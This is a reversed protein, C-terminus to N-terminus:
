ESCKPMKRRDVACALPFPLAAGVVPGGELDGAVVAAGIGVAEECVERQATQEHAAVGRGHQPQLVQRVVAIPRRGLRQVHM